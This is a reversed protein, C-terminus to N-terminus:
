MIKDDNRQMNIAPVIINFELKGFAFNDFLINNFVLNDFM